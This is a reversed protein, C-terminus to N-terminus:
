QVCVCNRGENKAEYLADDARHLAFEIDAENELDVRSVGLSITFKVSKNSELTISFDETKKRLKQAVKTALEIDTEPLLIVFEEGGFRCTIDSKRQTNKLLNAFEILVDDGVQHGYTDNVLKFKDLDLFLIVM